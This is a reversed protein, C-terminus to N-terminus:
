FVSMIHPFYTLLLNETIELELLEPKLGSEALAIELDDTLREDLLQRHSLNVAIKTEPLGQRQWAAGQLCAAEAGMQRHPHDCRHERSRLNAKPPVQGLSPNRWRLLAEM